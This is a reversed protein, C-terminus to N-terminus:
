RFPEPSDRQTTLARVVFPALTNLLVLGAYPRPVTRTARRGPGADIIARAVRDPNSVIWRTAWRRTLAQQPIGETAIFGPLVVGVHVGHRREEARLAESWGLLAFKSACYASRGPTAIRAAISAVNVVASPTGRRLGPLLQETLRVVADFNLEMTRQVNAWGGEPAGFEAPWGAGANNVLLQLGSGFAQRAAAEIVTPAEAATLDCPVGIAHHMGSAMRELRDARRAVLVLNWGERDLLRATAAGIGSSAGTVVATRGAQDTM